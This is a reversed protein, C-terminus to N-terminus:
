RDQYIITVNNIGSETTVINIQLHQHKESQIASVVRSMAPQSLDGGSLQITWANDELFKLLITVLEEQTMGDVVYRLFGLEGQNEFVSQTGDSVQVMSDLFTSDPANYTLVEKQSPQTNLTSSKTLYFFAGSILVLLCVLILLYSLIKKNPTDQM